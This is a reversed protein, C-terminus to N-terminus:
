GYEYAIINTNEEKVVPKEEIESKEVDKKAKNEKIVKIEKKLKDKEEQLKEQDLEKSKGM